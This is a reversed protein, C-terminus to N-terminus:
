TEPGTSAHSAMAAAKLLVDAYEPQTGHVQEASFRLQGIFGDLQAAPNFVLAFQDVAEAIAAGLESAIDEGRQARVALQNVRTLHLNVLGIDM